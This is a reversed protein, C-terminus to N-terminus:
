IPEMDRLIGLAEQYDKQLQAVEQELEVRFQHPTKGKMRQITVVLKEDPLYERSIFSMEIYNKADSKSFQYGFQEALLQCAGGELDINLGNNLGINKIMTKQAIQEAHEGLLDSVQTKLRDIEAELEPVRNAADMKSLAEVIRPHLSLADDNPDVIDNHMITHMGGIVRNAFGPAKDLCEKIQSYLMKLHDVDDEDFFASADDSADLGYGADIQNLIVMLDLAAELDRESPKAIKM